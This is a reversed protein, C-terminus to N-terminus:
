IEGPAPRGRGPRHAYGCIGCGHGDPGGCRCGGRSDAPGQGVGRGAAALHELVYCTYVTEKHIGTRRITDLAQRVTDGPRLSVFEPTMVSGASDAPYRLLANVAMRRQPSASRLIRTVLNAPLEELFDAADDLHLADFIQQLEGDAFSRALTAQTPGPLYSFVDAALDKPLTRFVAAQGPVTRWPTWSPPSTGRCRPGALPRTAGRRGPEGFASLDSGQQVHDYDNGRKRRYQRPPQSASEM